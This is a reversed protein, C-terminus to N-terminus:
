PRAPVLLVNLSEYIVQMHNSFLIIALFLFWTFNDFSVDGDMRFGRQHSVSTETNKPSSFSVEEPRQIEDPM